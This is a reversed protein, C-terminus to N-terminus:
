SPVGPSILAVFIVFARQESPESINVKIEQKKSVLHKLSTGPFGSCFVLHTMTLLFIKRRRKIGLSHALDPHKSEKAM